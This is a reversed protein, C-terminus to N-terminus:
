DQIFHQPDLNKSGPNPIQSGPHFLDLIRIRLVAKIPFIIDPLKEFWHDQDEPKNILDTQATSSSLLKLLTM